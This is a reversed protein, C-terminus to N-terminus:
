EARAFNLGLSFSLLLRHLRSYSITGRVIRAPSSRTLLVARTRARSTAARSIPESPKVRDIDEGARM